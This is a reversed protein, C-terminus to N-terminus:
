GVEVCVVREPGVYASALLLPALDRVENRHVVEGLAVDEGDHVLEVAHASRERRVFAITVARALATRNDPDVDRNRGPSGARAELAADIRSHFTRRRTTARVPQRSGAPGGCVRSRTLHAFEIRGNAVFPMVVTAGLAQARNIVTHVDEVQVYFIVWSAGGM